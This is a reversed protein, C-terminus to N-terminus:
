RLIPQPEPLVRPMERRPGPHQEKHKLQGPGPTKTLVMWVKFLREYARSLNDWERDTKAKAMLAHLRDMHVRVRSLSEEGLNGEALPGSQVPTLAARAAREAEAAKKAAQGRRGMYAANQKTFLPM